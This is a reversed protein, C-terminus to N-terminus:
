GLQQAEHGAPDRDRREAGLGEGVNDFGDGALLRAADVPAERLLHRQIREPEGNPGIEASGRRKGPELAQDTVRRFAGSEGLQM